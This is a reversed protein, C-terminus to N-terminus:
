ATRRRRALRALGLAAIAGLALTSPEPVAAAPTDYLRFAQDGVFVGTFFMPTLDGFQYMRSDGPANPNTLGWQGLEYGNGSMGFWYTGAALNLPTVFDVHVRVNDRGAASGDNDVITITEISESILGNPTGANDSRVRVVTTAGVNVYSSETYIDMGTVQVASGFVVSEVFNQGNSQNSWLGSLSGNTAAPSWDWLIGADARGACCSILAM